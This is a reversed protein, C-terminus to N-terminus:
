NKAFFDEFITVKISTTSPNISDNRPPEKRQIRPVVQTSFHCPAIASNSAVGLSGLHWIGGLFQTHPHNM